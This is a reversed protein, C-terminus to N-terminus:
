GAVAIKSQIMNKSIIERMTIGLAVWRSWDMNVDVDKLESLQVELISLLSILRLQDLGSIQRWVALDMENPIRFRLEFREGRDDASEIFWNDFFGSASKPFEIRPHQGATEGPHDVSSLSYTLEDWYKEGQMLNELRLTVGWYADQHTIKVMYIRDFRLVSPFKDLHTKLQCLGEAFDNALAQELEIDSSQVVDILVSTLEILANWDSTGLSALNANSGRNIPGHQPLFIIEDLKRHSAPWRVLPGHTNRERQVVLAATGEHLVTKFRLCKHYRRQLYIDQVIWQLTHKGDVLGLDQINIKDKLLLHASGTLVRAIYEFAEDCQTKLRQCELVKRELDDQVNLLEDIVVARENCNDAQHEVFRQYCRSKFSEFKDIFSAVEASFSENM